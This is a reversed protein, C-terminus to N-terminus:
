AKAEEPVVLLEVAALEAASVGPPPVVGLTKDRVVDQWGPHRTDLTFYLTDPIWTVSAPPRDTARLTIGEMAVQELYPLEAVAAVRAFRGWRQALESSADACRVALVFSAPRDLHAALDQCVFMNAGNNRLPLRVYSQAVKTALYADAAAFAAAFTPALDRHQPRPLTTPGAEDALISLHGLAQALLLCAARPALGPNHALELLLPLAARVASLQLFQGVDEAQLPHAALKRQRCAAALHRERSACVTLIRRLNDMVYASVGVHLCPPVHTSSWRLAGHADRLLEGVCLAEETGTLEDAFALRVHPVAFAVRVAASVGQMQEAVARQRLVYRQHDEPAGETACNAAGDQVTAVAVYIPLVSQGPLFHEGLHRSLVQTEPPAEGDGTGVAIRLGSPLTARLADIQVKGEGLAADNRVVHAVGWSDPAVEGFRAERAKDHYSDQQQMHQPSVLMGQTWAVRAGLTNM